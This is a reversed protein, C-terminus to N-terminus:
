IGRKHIRDINRLLNKKIDELMQARDEPHGKTFQRTEQQQEQARSLSFLGEKAARLKELASEKIIPLNVLKYTVVIEKDKRLIKAKIEDNIKSEIISILAKYRNKFNATNIGNIELITDKDKLGLYYGTTKNKIRGVRLGIPQKQKYYTILELNNFLNGISPVMIQFKIPDIEFKQNDIKKVTNEWNIENIGLIKDDKTTLYMTEKQGNSRLLIVKDQTIKAIQADQIKNGITYSLEKGAEDELLAFNNSNHNSFLVGKLKIKLPPLFEPLKEQPIPTEEPAKFEPIETILKAKEQEKYTNFLDEKYIFELNIYKKPEIIEQFEKIKSLPLIPVTQKIIINTLLVIIFLGLVASNLQWLGQNM